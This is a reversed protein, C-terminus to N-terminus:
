LYIDFEVECINFTLDVIHVYEFICYCNIYVNRTRSPIRVYHSFSTSYPMILLIYMNTILSEMIYM